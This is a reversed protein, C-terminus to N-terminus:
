FEPEGDLALAGDPVPLSLLAREGESHAIVATACTQSFVSVAGGGMALLRELILGLVMGDGTSWGSLGLFTAATLGPAGLTLAGAGCGALWATALIGGLTALDVGTGTHRSLSVAVAAWGLALGDRHLAACLPLTVSAIRNPVGGQRRVAELTLPLAGEVSRGALATVMAPVMTGLFTLPNIRTLVWLVGPLFVLGYIAWGILPAALLRWYTGVTCQWAFLGQSTTESALLAFIGVPLAQRTRTLMPDLTEEIGQCFRGLLRAHGEEIQNRYYGIGLCLVVLGPWGWNLVAAFRADRALGGFDATRTFVEAPFRTSVGLAVWMAVVVALLSSAAMWAATKGLLRKAGRMTELGGLGLVIGSVVSAVALARMWAMFVAGALTCLEKGAVALPGADPRALVLGAGVGLVGALLTQWTLLFQPRPPM